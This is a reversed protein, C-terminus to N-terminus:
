ACGGQRPSSPFRWSVGDCGVELCGHGGVFGGVRRHFVKCDFIDGEMCDVDIGVGAIGAEVVEERAEDGVEVLERAFGAEGGSFPLGGELEEGAGALGAGSIAM